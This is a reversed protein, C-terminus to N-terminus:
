ISQSSTLILSSSDSSAGGANMTPVFVGSKDTAKIESETVSSNPSRERDIEEVLAATKKAREALRKELDQSDFKGKAQQQVESELVVSYKELLIRVRGMLIKLSEKESDVEKSWPLVQLELYRGYARGFLKGLEGASFIELSLKPHLRVTDINSVQTEPPEERDPTTITRTVAKPAEINEKATEDVTVESNEAPANMDEFSVSKSSTEKSPKGFHIVFPPETRDLAQQTAPYGDITDVTMKPTIGISSLDKRWVRTVKMPTSRRDIEFGLPRSKFFVMMGSPTRKAGLDRGATGPPLSHSNPPLYGPKQLPVGLIHSYRALRADVDKLHVEHQIRSDAIANIQDRISKEFSPDSKLFAQHRDLSQQVHGPTDHLYGDHYSPRSYYAEEPQFRTDQYRESLDARAGFARAFAQTDLQENPFDYPRHSRRRM